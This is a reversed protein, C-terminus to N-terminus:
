SCVSARLVCLRAGSSSMAPCALRPPHPAQFLQRPCQGFENVQLLHSQNNTSGTVDHSLCVKRLVLKSWPLPTMSSVQAELAARERPDAIAAVDVDGYTLHHFVNDAEVAPAGRQKYRGCSFHYDIQRCSYKM